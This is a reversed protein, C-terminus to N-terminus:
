PKVHSTHRAVEGREIHHVISQMSRGSCFGMTTSWHDNASLTQFTEWTAGALEGGGKSKHHVHGLYVYRHKTRGWAEPQRAAMVGPMEVAKAMDGHTAGVLVRGFEWFFFPSPSIDITVRKHGKYYCSLAITLALAAYPDHNGQLNRVLVNKHKQLALTITHIMLEVGCQLVKAYRTDVDLANGSRPTRNRDNESHFFDGLNLILAQETAPSSSVLEAMTNKLLKDGLALDYDEGTEAAWSYMGLHHDAIPYVVAIEDEAHRPAAPIIAKGDYSSFAMKLAATVDDLTPDTRTKIWKQVVRNDGDVLASVGKIIHKAPLQFEDGPEKTQQVWKGDVKSTIKKIFFGPLTPDFGLLGREAARKLRHEVTSRSLKLRDATKQTTGTEKLTEVTEQLQEDTLSPIPM